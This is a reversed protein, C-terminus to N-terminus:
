IDDHGTPHVIRHVDGECLRALTEQRGSEDFLWLKSAAISQNVGDVAAQISLHVGDDVPVLPGAIQHRYETLETGRNRCPEGVVRRGSEALAEVAVEEGRHEVQALYRSIRELGVARGERNVVGVEDGGLIAVEM